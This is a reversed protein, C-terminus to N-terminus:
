FQGATAIEDWEVIITSRMSITTPMATPIRIRFGENAALVIPYNQGVNYSFLDEPAITLGVPETATGAKAVLGIANADAVGVGVNLANGSTINIGAVVTTAQSTRMKQNNGGITVITGGSDGTTFTRVIVMDRDLIGAVTAATVTNVLIRVRTIRCIKIVDTWRFSYIISGAALATYAATTLAIRYAGLLVPPLSTVSQIAPFIASASGISSKM